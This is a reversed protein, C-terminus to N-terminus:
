ALRYKDFRVEEDLILASVIRTHIHKFSVKKVLSSVNRAYNRTPLTRSVNRAVSLM